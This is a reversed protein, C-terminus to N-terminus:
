KYTILSVLKQKQVSYDFDDMQRGNKIYRVLFDKAFMLSNRVDVCSIRVMLFVSYFVSVDQPKIELSADWEVRLDEESDRYLIGEEGLFVLVPEGTHKQLIGAAEYVDRDQPVMDAVESGNLCLVPSLSLLDESIEQEMNEYNGDPLVYLPCDTRSLFDLLEEAGNGCLLDGYVIVASIEESDLSEVSEEDFDYESGPILLTSEKGEEDQFCYEVGQLGENPCNLPLGRKESLSVVQEGYTGTGCPAILEFPIAFKQLIESICLASGSLEMSSSLPLIEEGEKPIVKVKAVIKCAVRAFIVIKKM